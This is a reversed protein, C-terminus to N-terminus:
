KGAVTFAVNSFLFLARRLHEVTIDVEVKDLERRVGTTSAHAADNRVDLIKRFIDEEIIENVTKRVKDHRSFQKRIDRLIAEVNIPVSTVEPRMESDLDWIVRLLKEHVREIQDQVARKRTAKESEDAAAYAI